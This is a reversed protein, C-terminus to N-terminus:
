ANRETTSLRLTRKMGRILTSLLDGVFPAPDTWSFLAHAKRGRWSNLWQRLTLDGRRWYCLASRFDYHLHIWKVGQYKQELNAPLPWGVNDCYMAYLLEVGGAEAIASRVTPRGINAEMVLYAGSDEARKMEVYGLGFYHVTQFLRIAERQVTDNRCEEGLCSIGAEPPWQRIKRAVFTAVTKSNADFYCNCSYLNSDPGKVWEQVILPQTWTSCLEYTSALEDAQHIKFVKSPSHTTWNPTRMAPKLICPFALEALAKEVDARTHLTFTRPVQLGKERAFAYFREKSMLTELVDAEPLAVHYHKGLEQRHRSILLVSMDTCPYLVAKQELTSGLNKLLGIFEDTQTDAFLIKDCVRTRCCYHKPRRAIAVVPVGHRALIRATQIGPLSDLGVIVASPIEEQRRKGLNPVKM